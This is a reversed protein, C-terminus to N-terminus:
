SLIVLLFLWILITSTFIIKLRYYLIFYKLIKLFLFFLKYNKIVISSLILNKNM